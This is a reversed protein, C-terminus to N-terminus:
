TALLRDTIQKYRTKFASNLIVGIMTRRSLRPRSLLAKDPQQKLDSLTTLGGLTMARIEWGLRGSLSSGLEIGDSMIKETRLYLSRLLQSLLSTDTQILDAEDIGIAALEVQPIYIRNQETYDQVIDQYFNILQLSTCIADSQQLQQQTPTGQLHLILRGVPNASFRCYDLVENFTKYRSKVVDQRFAILLDELLQIPLNFRHVTDQLALFIPDNGVYCHDAIESLYQSYANLLRLREEAPIHAEDAFDDATRAFAYIVAIPRRLAKPLLISAVPFNEYHSKAM